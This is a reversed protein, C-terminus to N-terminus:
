LFIQRLVGQAFVSEAIDTSDSILDVSGFLRTKTLRVVDPDKIQHVIGSSFEGMSIVKFPRDHFSRVQTPMPESIYLQNHKNAVVSYAKSLCRERDVWNSANLCSELHPKLLLAIDLKQFATGFWKSYPFYVREMLFSLRMLDRVLRAAIISSGLEDGAYGARGMLHEDQEIRAWCAALLYLWVDHPYYELKNLQGSWNYNDRFIKGDKLSRLKQQPMTLWDSVKLPKDIEIGLYSSIFKKFSYAEVRHNVPGTNEYDLLQVGANSPQSSPNTFSTPYGKFRHPLKHRLMSKLSGAKGELDEESLFLMVRPGWHHDSSMSSDFGMVESGPGILGASYKLDPSVQNIVPQVEELFYMESLQMGPIFEVTGDAM